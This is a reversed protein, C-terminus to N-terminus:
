VRGWMKMLRKLAPKVFDYHQVVYFTEGTTANKRLKKLLGAAIMENWVRSVRSQDLLLKTATRTQSMGDPYESVHYYIAWVHKHRFPALLKAVKDLRETDIESNAREFANMRQHQATYFRAYLKGHDRELTTKRRKRGKKLDRDAQAEARQKIQELPTM